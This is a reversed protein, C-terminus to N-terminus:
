IKKFQKFKCTLKSIYFNENEKSIILEEEYKMYSVEGTQLYDQCELIVRHSSDDVKYSIIKSKIKSLKFAEREFTKFTEDFSQIHIGEGFKSYDFIFECNDSFLAKLNTLNKQKIALTFGDIFEEIEPPCKITKFLKM